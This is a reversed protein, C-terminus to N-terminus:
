SRAAVAQGQTPDIAWSVFVEPVPGRSGLRQQNVPVDAPNSSRVLM